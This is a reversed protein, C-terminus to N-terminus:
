DAHRLSVVLIKNARGRNRLFNECEEVLGGTASCTRNCPLPAATVAQPVRSKTM